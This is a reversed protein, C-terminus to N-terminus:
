KTMERGEKAESDFFCFLSYLCFVFSFSSLLLFLFFVFLLFLPPPAFLLVFCLCSLLFVFWFRHYIMLHIQAVSTKEPHTISLMSTKVRNELSQAIQGHPGSESKGDLKQFLESFGEKQLVSLDKLTLNHFITTETSHSTCSKDFKQCVKLNSREASGLGNQFFRPREATGTLASLSGESSLSQPFRWFQALLTEHASLPGAFCMLQCPVRIQQM